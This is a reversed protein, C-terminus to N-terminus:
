KFEYEKKVYKSTMLQLLGGYGTGFSIIDGLKYNSKTVDIILHDSSAGLIKINKDIPWINGPYVDQKGIAVIARDIIGLDEYIPKNGFADVGTEGIPLSPKSKLEIIEAKLTFIDHYLDTINKGYATERGLFIAEGLRLNNIVKPLNNNLIFHLSSSNGGSIIELQILFKDEIIKKIDNLIGINEASPIITGYCTLNTGIGLLKINKLKLIQEVITLYENEFWIGERLDGLDFMLIVQHIKNIKAAADNLKRITEIESNLSVDSYKVVAYVESLMPLRLLVKPLESTEFLQLNEIRSDAIHTIGSEIVANTITKDGSLVKAVGFISTIGKDMCMKVLTKTNHKLKEINVCIQPYM